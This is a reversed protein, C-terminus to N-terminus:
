HLIAGAHDIAVQHARSLIDDTLDLKGGLVKAFFNVLDRKDPDHRILFFARRATTRRGKAAVEQPSMAREKKLVYPKRAHVWVGYDDMRMKAMM